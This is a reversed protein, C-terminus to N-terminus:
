PESLRYTPRRRVVQGGDNREGDSGIQVDRVGPDLSPEGETEDDRCKNTRLDTSPDVLPM